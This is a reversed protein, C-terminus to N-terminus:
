PVLRIDECGFFAFWSGVVLIQGKVWAETNGAESSEIV